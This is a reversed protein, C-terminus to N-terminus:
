FVFNMEEILTEILFILSGYSHKNPFNKINKGTKSDSCVPLASFLELLGSFDRNESM